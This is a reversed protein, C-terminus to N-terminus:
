SYNQVLKSIELLYLKILIKNEKEFHIKKFCKKVTQPEATEFFDFWHLRNGTEFIQM